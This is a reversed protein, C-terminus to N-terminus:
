LSSLSLVLNLAARQGPGVDRAGRGPGGSCWWPHSRLVSGPLAESCQQAHGLAFFTFSLCPIVESRYPAYLLLSLASGVGMVCLSVTLLAPLGSPWLVPVGHSFAPPTAVPRLPLISPPCRGQVSQGPNLGRCWLGDGSFRWSHVRRASGPTPRSCRWTHGM